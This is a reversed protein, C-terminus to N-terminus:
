AVNSARRDPSQQTLSAKSDVWQFVLLTRDDQQFKSPEFANYRLIISTLTTATLSGDKNALARRIHQIFHFQQRSSKLYGDSLLLVFSGRPIKMQTLQRNKLTLVKAAWVEGLHDESHKLDIQPTILIPFTFNARYLSLIGTKPDFEGGAMATLDDSKHMHRMYNAISSEYDSLLSLNKSSNESTTQRQWMSQAIVQCANAKLAAQIGQGSVDNMLFVLKGNKPNANVFYTDGSVGRAAEHHCAVSFESPLKPIDLFTRQLTKGLEVDREMSENKAKAKSLHRVRNELTSINLLTCITFCYAAYPQLVDAFGVVADNAALSPIFHLIPISAQEFAAIAGLLLAGQRWLLGRGKIFWASRLCVIIGISGVIIDELVPLNSAGTWGIMPATHQLMGYPFAIATGWALWPLVNKTILRSLQLFFYLRFIDGMQAAFHSLFQENGSQLWGLELSKGFAEFGMFLALGLSEPSGDVALFLVLAFVALAVKFIWGVNNEKHTREIALFDQFSEFDAQTTVFLGLDPRANKPEYVTANAETAEIMVQFHPARAAFKKAEFPAYIRRGDFFTGVHENEVYVDARHYRMEPFSMVLTNHGSLSGWLNPDPNVQMLTVFSNEQGPAFQEPTKITTALSLPRGEGFNIRNQQFRYCDRETTCNKTMFGSSIWPVNVEPLYIMQAHSNLYRDPKHFSWSQKILFFGLLGLLTFAVTSSVATRNGYTPHSAQRRTYLRRLAAPSYLSRFLLKCTELM